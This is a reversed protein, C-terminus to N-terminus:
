VARYGLRYTLPTLFARQETEPNTDITCARGLLEVRGDISCAAVLGAHDAMVDAVAAVRASHVASTDDDSQSAITIEVTGRAFNASGALAESQCKVLVAPLQLEEPERPEFGGAGDEAMELDHAYVRVALAPALARAIALALDHDRM